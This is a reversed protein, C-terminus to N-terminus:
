PVEPTYSIKSAGLTEPELLVLRECEPCKMLCGVHKSSRMIAALTKQREGTKRSHEIAMESRIFARYDKESILAYSRRKWERNTKDTREPTFDFGCKCHM